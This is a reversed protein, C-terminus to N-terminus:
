SPNEELGATAVFGQGQSGTSGSATVVIRIADGDDYTPDTVLTATELTDDSDASSMTIVSDLMTTWSGSGDAAKQLDVTFQKDGGTPATTVRVRFSSLTGDGRAVRLLKTESVVDAGDAQGHNVDVRHIVKSAAIRNNADNSIADNDFQGDQVYVNGGFTVDDHFIQIGRVDTTM